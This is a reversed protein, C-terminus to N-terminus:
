TRLDLRRRLWAWFSRRPPPAVQDGSEAPPPEPPARAPSAPAPPAAPAEDNKENKENKPAPPATRTASGTSLDGVLAALQGYTRATLAAALRRELQEPDLRGDGGAVRLQEVVQDRDEHSARLNERALVDTRPSDPSPENPM